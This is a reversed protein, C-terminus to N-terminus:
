LRQAELSDTEETSLLDGFFEALKLRELALKVPKNSLRLRPFKGLLAALVIEASIDNNIPSRSTILDVARQTKEKELAQDTYNLEYDHASRLLCARLLSDSYTGFLYEKHNLVTAVPYHRPGLAPKKARDEYEPSRLSQVGSAVAAFVSAECTGVNAFRSGKTFSL